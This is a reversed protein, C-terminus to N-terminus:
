ATRNFLFMNNAGEPLEKIKELVFGREGCFALIEDKSAVEYPLGGLWDVIDHYIDMGRDKKENWKWPNLGARRRDRMLNFIYQWVMIKKGVITSRNYKQKLALHKPYEPGKSYIAIWFKGGPRVTTCANGIAEWMAGTHHLVGWSYVIEHQGLGAVFDKDLVSGQTVRWNSPSGAKQWLLRTSEVSYPDVDFSLIEKAGMLYYCLSHIGSGSGIDLVTKGAVRDAGLWEEIDARAREVAYEDVTDVFSRWNKGFSFTIQENNLKQEM